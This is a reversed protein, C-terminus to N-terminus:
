VRRVAGSGLMVFLAAFAALAALHPWIAEGGLGRIMVDTLATTAYTLPMAYALPRLLGPLLPVSVVLGCLLVQPIIVMPIFQMVQFENRAFTSLFIGLSSAGLTVLLEVAVVWALSGRYQIGLVGVVVGVVVAAQVLAMVSFGVMYGVMVEGPRMPSTALRTLTGRQRERLFAMATLLFVFFFALFALLGPALHDALTMEPGGYVYRVEFPLGVGPVAPAPGGARAAAGLPGLVATALRSVMEPMVSRLEGLIRSTTGLDAGEVVVDLSPVRGQLPASLLDRPVVLAASARGDQVVAVPDEDGADVVRWTDSAAPGVIHETAWSALRHTPAVVAVTPFAPSGELLYTILLMLVVPVGFMLGLTRKDRLLQRMVRSALARTRRISARREGVHVGLEGASM